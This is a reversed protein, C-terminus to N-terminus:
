RWEGIKSLKDTLWIDDDERIVSVSPKFKNQGTDHNIHHIYLKYSQTHFRGRCELIAINRSGGILSRQKTASWGRAKTHDWGVEPFAFDVIEIVEPQGKIANRPGLDYVTEFPKRGQGVLEYVRLHLRMAGSKRFRIKAKVQLDTNIGHDWKGAKAFEVDFKRTMWDWLQQIRSRDAWPYFIWLAAFFGTAAWAIGSPMASVLGQYPVSNTVAEAPIAAAVGSVVTALASADSKRALQRM